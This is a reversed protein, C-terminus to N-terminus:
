KAEKRAKLWAEVETRSWLELKGARAAFTLVPEPFDDRRWRLLTDRAVGGALKRVQAATRLERQCLRWLGDIRGSASDVTIVGRNTKIRTQPASVPREPAM